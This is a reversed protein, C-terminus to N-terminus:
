LGAAIIIRVVDVGRVAVLRRVEDVVLLDLMLRREHRVDLTEGERVGHIEHHGVFADALRKQEEVERKGTRTASREERVGISTTEGHAGSEDHVYDGLPLGAEPLTHPRPLSSETELAPRAHEEAP